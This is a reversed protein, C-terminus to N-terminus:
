HTYVHTLTHRGASFLNHSRAGSLEVTTSRTETETETEAEGVRRREPCLSWLNDTGATTCM